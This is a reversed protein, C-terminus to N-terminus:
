SITTCPTAGRMNNLPLPNMTKSLLTCEPEFDDKKILLDLDVGLRPVNEPYLSGAFAVGKLLIVPINDKQFIKLINILWHQNVMDATIRWLTNNKLLTLVKPDLKDRLELMGINNYIIPIISRIDSLLIESFSNLVKVVARKDTEPYAERKLSGSIRAFHLLRLYKIRKTPTCYTSTTM